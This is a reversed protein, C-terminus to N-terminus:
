LKEEFEQVREKLEEKYESTIIEKNKVDFNKDFEPLSFNTIIKGGWRPMIEYLYKSVGKGAGKGPSTSLLLIPKDMLIKKERRSIWDITNKLLATISGNYEPSAIVLGESKKIKERLEKIIDPIGNEKEYELSYFPAKYDTLKIIEVDNEEFLSVAYELLNHNISYISSSASFGLLKKM